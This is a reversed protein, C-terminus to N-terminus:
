FNTTLVADKYKLWKKRFVILEAIAEAIADQMLPNSREVKIIHMKTEDDIFRADYVSFYLTKLDTNVIFYTVVQWKYQAPIGLFPAKASEKFVPEPETKTPKSWTGLGLEQAPIKDALQYFIANKSDPSKNEFAEEYVGKKNKIWGDGSIGLYKFEDSICFGLQTVKKDTLQEFHKRAFVEEATGREMEPTSKFAKTQETAEEAILECILMLQDLPTGMVSDMKTGTVMCRRSELWEQTGQELGKIIKM